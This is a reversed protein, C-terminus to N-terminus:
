ALNFLIQITVALRAPQSTAVIDGFGVTSLTTVTFYVADLKTELNAFQDQRHDMGYYIAAFGLILLTLLLVLAEVAALTPHPSGVVRRLRSVTLPFIAAVVLAGVLAGVWWLPGRLPLLAYGAVLAIVQWLCRRLLERM